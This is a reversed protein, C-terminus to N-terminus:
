SVAPMLQALHLTGALVDSVRAPKISFAVSEALKM